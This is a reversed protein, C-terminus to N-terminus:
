ACVESTISQRFENDDNVVFLWKNEKNMAVKPFVIKHEYRCLPQEDENFSSELSKRSDIEENFNFLSRLEGSQYLIDNSDLRAM